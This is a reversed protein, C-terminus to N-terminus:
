VRSLAEVLTPVPSEMAQRMLDRKREVEALEAARWTAWDRIVTAHSDPLNKMSAPRMNSYQLLVVSRPCRPEMRTLLHVRTRERM